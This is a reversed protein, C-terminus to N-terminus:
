VFRREVLSLNMWMCDIVELLYNGCFPLVLLGAQTNATTPLGYNGAAVLSGM